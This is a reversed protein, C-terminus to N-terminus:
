ILDSISSKKGGGSGEENSGSSEDETSSGRNADESGVPPATGIVARLEAATKPEFLKRYDFPQIYEDPKEEAPCLAKIDELSVREIFEFDEGTSCEKETYRTVEFRCGVLNGDRRERQKLLKNRAGGKAVFLKKTNKYVKNTKKSTFESHDIVTWVGVYSYKKGSECIPCGEEDIESICTEWNLWSGDLYLQHERFFFGDSDLFTIQASTDPPLWLRFPQRSREIEAQRKKDEQKAKDAGEQGSSYWSM